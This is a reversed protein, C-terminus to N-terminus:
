PLCLPSALPHFFGHSPTFSPCLRHSLAETYLTYNDTRNARGTIIVTNALCVNMLSPLLGPGDAGCWRGFQLLPVKQLSCPSVSPHRWYFLYLFSLKSSQLLFHAM